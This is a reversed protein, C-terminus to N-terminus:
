EHLVLSCLNDLFLLNGCLISFANFKALIHMFYQFLMSIRFEAMQKNLNQEKGSTVTRCISKCHTGHIFNEFFRLQTINNFDKFKANFFYPFNKQFYTPVQFM